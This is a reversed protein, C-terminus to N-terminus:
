TFFCTWSSTKAEAAIGIGFMGPAGAASADVVFVRFVRFFRGDISFGLFVPVVPFAM